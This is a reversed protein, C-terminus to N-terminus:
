WQQRRTAFGLSFSMRQRLFRVGVIMDVQARQGESKARRSSNALSRWIKGPRNCLEIEFDGRHLRTNSSLKSSCPKKSDM